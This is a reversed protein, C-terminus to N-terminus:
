LAAQCLRGQSLLSRPLARFNHTASYLDVHRLSALLSDLSYLSHTLSRSCRVIIATAGSATLQQLQVGPSNLSAARAVASQTTRQQQQEAQVIKDNKIRDQRIKAVEEPNLPNEYQIGSLFFLQCRYLSPFYLSMALPSLSMALPLSPCLSPSLTLSLFSGSQPFYEGSESIVATHKPNKMTPNVLTPRLTPTRKSAVNKICDFRFAHLTTVSSGSDENYMHGTKM